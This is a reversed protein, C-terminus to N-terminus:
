PVHEDQRFRDEHLFCRLPMRNDIPTQQVDGFSVSHECDGIQSLMCDSKL